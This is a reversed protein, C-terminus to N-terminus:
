RLACVTLHVRFHSLQSLHLGARSLASLAPAPCSASVSSPVVRRELRLHRQRRDLPVPRDGLQRTLEPLM